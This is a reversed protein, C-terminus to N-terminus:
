RDRTSYFVLGAPMVKRAGSNNLISWDGASLYRIMEIHEQLPTRAALSPGGLDLAPKGQKVLTATLSAGTASACGWALGAGLCLAVLRTSTM